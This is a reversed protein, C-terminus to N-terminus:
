SDSVDSCYEDQSTGHKLAASLLTVLPNKMPNSAMTTAATSRYLAKYM